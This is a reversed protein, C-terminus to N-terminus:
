AQRMTRHLLFSLICGLLAVLWFFFLPVCLLSYLVEHWIEEHPTVDYALLALAPSVFVLALWLFRVNRSLVTSRNENKV